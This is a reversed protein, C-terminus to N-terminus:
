LGLVEVVLLAEEVSALVRVKGTTDTLSVPGDLPPLFKVLWWRGGAQVRYLRGFGDGDVRPVDGYLPLEPIRLWHMPCEEAPEDPPTHRTTRSGIGVLPEQTQPALLWAAIPQCHEWDALAQELEDRNLCLRTLAKTEPEPVCLEILVPYPVGSSLSLLKERWRHM